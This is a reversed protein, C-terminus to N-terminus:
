TCAKLLIYKIHGKSHKSYRQNIDDLTIERGKNNECFDKLNQVTIKNDDVDSIQLVIPYQQLIENKMNNHNIYIIPKRAVIYEFIKSPFFDSTTNGIGVLVDAQEYVAEMLEHSVQKHVIINSFQFAYKEVIGECGSYFLHLNIKFKELRSFMQLMYEPNRIEKYFRGAYVCNIGESYYFKEAIRGNRSEPLMYPLEIYHSLKNVLDPRNDIIEESLLICDLKKLVKREVEVIREYKMYFPRIRTKASFPDVTYGCHKIEPHRKKMDIGSFHAAMPSCVTFIIDLKRKQNIEELKKLAKKRYWSLNGLKRVKIQISGISHIIKKIIRSSKQEYEIRKCGVLHIRIEGGSIKKEIYANKGDISICIIDIDFGDALLETFRKVCLGTPSPEPYFIGCVIALHKKM